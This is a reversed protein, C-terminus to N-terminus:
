IHRIDCFYKSQQQSKQDIRALQAIYYNSWLPVSIDKFNYM